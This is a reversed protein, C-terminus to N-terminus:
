PTALAPPSTLMSSMRLGTHIAPGSSAQVPPALELALQEIAQRTAGNFRAEDMVQRAQDTQGQTLLYLALNSRVKPNAPQLQAAQLVPLRAADFRRARLLAYGLDSLLLGDAPLVQRAKEFMEAARAYDDSAGALLGLGRYASAREPTDLLKQYLAASAAQHGTQRLADARLLRTEHTVGWRQELADIHALSAFWMGSGQMQRILALYTPQNDLSPERSAAQAAEAQAADPLSACAGLALASAAVLLRGCTRRLSLLQATTNM